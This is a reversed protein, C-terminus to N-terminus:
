SITHQGSLPLIPFPHHRRTFLRVLLISCLMSSQKTELFLPQSRTLWSSSTLSVVYRGGSCSVAKGFTHLRVAIERELGLLSVLGRGGNGLVGTSHAEDIVFQANGQPFLEKTVRVLEKLPCIDGDMSYISEVAIVVCRKEQKILANSEKLEMLVERLSNPDNHRFQIRNVAPSKEMGDHTSAHVLEDFVIADGPRPIAAFIAINAEYGSGVILGTEARHFRAVEEEVLELM